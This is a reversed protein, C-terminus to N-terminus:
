FKQKENERWFYSQNNHNNNAVMMRRIGEDIGTKPTWGLAQVMEERDSFFCKEQHGPYLEEDVSMGCEKAVKKVIDLVRVADGTGINIVESDIVECASKVIAEAVDEVFVFDNQNYAGNLKPYEGESFCKMIYPILSGSRQGVGYVYFLRLWNLRVHNERCFAHAMRYFATKSAQFPFNCGVADNVLMKGNPKEYEWCSGTVVLNKVACEKCIRLVNLGMRLNKESMAYGYDPIGKWALHIVTEIKGGRMKAIISDACELDGEMVKENGQIEYTDMSQTLVFIDSHQNLLRKIVYRGIFGNAGTVFIM